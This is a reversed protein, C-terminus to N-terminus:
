FKGRRYSYRIQIFLWVRRHEESIKIFNISFLFLTHINHIESFQSNRSEFQGRLRLEFAALRLERHVEFSGILHYPPQSRSRLTKDSHLHAQATQENLITCTPFDNKWTKWETQCNNTAVSYSTTRESFLFRNM